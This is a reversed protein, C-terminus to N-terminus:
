RRPHSAMPWSISLSLASRRVAGHRGAIIDVDRNVTMDGEVRIDKRGDVITLLLGGARPLLVDGDCRPKEAPMPEVPAALPPYREDVM